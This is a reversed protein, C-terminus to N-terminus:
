GSDVGELEIEYNEVMEEELNKDWDKMKASLMFDNRLVSWTPQKSENKTTKPPNIPQKQITDSKEGMLVDLFARKDINKLVKEKRVELPGAEELQRSIDTQQTKVANFLQVVGKTAIKQLTRERDKELIDPKIRLQPLERRKKRLKTEEKPGEKAEVVEKKIQGDATAIEYIETVKRKKQDTLKKAKSLVLTKKRKPKKTNLIKAISDAWAENLLSKSESDIMEESSDENNDLDSEHDLVSSDSENNDEKQIPKEVHEEKAVDIDSLSDSSSQGDEEIVIKAKQTKVTM